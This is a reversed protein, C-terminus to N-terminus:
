SLVERNYCEECYVRDKREPAYTTIMDRSCKDCKREFIKRPNRKEMRERHRQDPHKKPIPLGHKRYFELEQSIIRFPKWSVECEIAWNLIDDPIQTIDEPLLSAKIIKEVKPFPAEYDSWNFVSWHLFTETEIGGQSLPDPPNQESSIEGSVLDRQWETVDGKKLPSSGLVEERKMPYYENAVTENYGFPSMSAPFFEGWEWDTMMKSIIQPVLSEYEERTYQKNLICYSKNRLWICLFCNQCSICTDCYYLDRCNETCTFSFNVNYAYWVNCTEYCLSWQVGYNTCDMSDKVDFATFAYKVDELMMGFFCYYANKSATLYEWFVNETMTNRLARKPITSSFINVEKKKGAPSLQMFMDVQKYYEGKEYQINKFYYKKNNLWECLTCESCGQCSKCFSCSDLMSSDMCHYSSHIRDSHVIEYSNESAVTWLTDVVNRSWGGTAVTYYSDEFFSPGAWGNFAYYCNKSARLNDCYDCNECWVLYNSPRPVSKMMESIEIFFDQSFDIDRGYSMPDWADSWWYDPHVITYTTEPNYMSFIERGTKSCNSKYVKKENHWTERRQARCDPCLTPPPILYRREGFVPSVKAYFEM